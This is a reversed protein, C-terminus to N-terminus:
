LIGAEVIMKSSDKYSSCGPYLCLFSAIEKEWVHRLRAAKVTGMVASIEKAGDGSYDEGALGGAVYM